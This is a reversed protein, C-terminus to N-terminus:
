ELELRGEMGLMGYIGELYGDFYQIWKGKIEVNKVMLVSTFSAVNPRRCAAFFGFPSRLM